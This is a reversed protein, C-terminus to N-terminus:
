RTSSTAAAATPRPARPRDRFPVFVGGGYAALWYLELAREEGGLEFRGIAFRESPSRRM